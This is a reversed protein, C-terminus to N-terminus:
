KLIMQTRDTGASEYQPTLEISKTPCVDECQACHTCRDLYFMPRKGKEDNIMEIVEAPCVRFCMSCGICRDRYFVIKGRFDSPIHVKEKDKFPYRLTVARKFIHRLLERQMAVIREEKEWIEQTPGLDM